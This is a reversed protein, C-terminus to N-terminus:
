GLVRQLDQVRELLIQVELDEYRRSSRMAGTDGPQRVLHRDHVRTDNRINDLDAFKGIQSLTVHHAAYGFGDNVVADFEKAVDGFLGKDSM